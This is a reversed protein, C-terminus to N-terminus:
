LGTAPKKGRRLRVVAGQLVWICDLAVCYSAIVVLYPSGVALYIIIGVFGLLGVNLFRLHRVSIRERMQGHRVAYAYMRWPADMAWFIVCLYLLSWPRVASVLIILPICDRCVKLLAFTLVRWDSLILTHLVYIVLCICLAGLYCLIARPGLPLLTLILAVAAVRISLFLGLGIRVDPAIRHTAQEPQERKALLDNILGGIEYVAYFMLFSLPMIALSWGGLNTFLYGAMTAPAVERLFLTRLGVRHFRSIIYYLSPVYVWKRTDKNVSHVDIDAPPETYNAVFDFQGGTATWGNKAKSHNLVVTRTGFRQLFDADEINDSYASSDSLDVTTPLEQLTSNKHGLLDARLAGTYRGDRIELESSFYNQIGLKAAIAAIPPDIAASVLYITRGQSRERKLAEVIRDNLRGNAVLDEVYLEALQAIRAPDYGRLLAIQCARLLDRGFVLRIRLVHFLSALLRVIMLLGYRFISDRRLVFRIFGFTNNTRTITGCCDFVAIGSKNM